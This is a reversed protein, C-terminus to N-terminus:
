SLYLRYQGNEPIDVTYNVQKPSLTPKDPFVLVEEAGTPVLFDKGLVDEDKTFLFSDPFAIKRFTALQDFNKGRASVFSL